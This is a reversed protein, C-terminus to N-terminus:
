SPSFQPLFLGLSFLNVNKNIYLYFSYDLPDPLTLCSQTVSCARLLHQATLYGFGSDLLSASSPSLLKPFRIQLWPCSFTMRCWWLESGSVAIKAEEVKIWAKSGLPSYSIHAGLTSSLNRWNSTLDTVQKYKECYRHPRLSMSSIKWRSSNLSFGLKKKETHFWPPDKARAKHSIQAM